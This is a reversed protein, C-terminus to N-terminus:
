DKIFDGRRYEDFALDLEDQTNMVIPGHWAVPEELPRGSVLLLRINSDRATIQLEEGEGFLVVHEASVARGAPAEFFGQGEVIYTFAKSEAPLEYEFVTDKPISVDLYLPDTVIDEVPGKTEGYTGAVVKVLIGNAEVIEPIKNAQINQYRPKMMKNGAPLNVWLQFGWLLETSEPMEEHIIGSGATMWQVDGSRIVGSNGLSDGHKVLGHLM